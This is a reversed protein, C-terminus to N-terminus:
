PRAIHTNQLIQDFREQWTTVSTERLLWARGSKGMASRGDQSMSELSLVDRMLAESDGAKHLFGTGGQTVTETLGGSRAALVPKAYDFAEYVVIGLPEWWTSPVILARCRCLEQHKKEGDILGLPIISPNAAAHAQVLPALPGEGAIHLPPAADGHKARLLDWAACLPGIGKEEVLRGLFLYTGQDSVDPVSPMADWSHRLTFIRDAPIAGSAILQDRMFDSIAIWARVNELWGSAYLMQLMTAFLASKLVSGQWVGECVEPGLNGHLADDLIRGRSYLTGGVSFPRFNHLYQVVPIQRQKAAHYIAPSAVPYLNHTLVVQPDSQDAIQNFREKAAPNYFLRLAQSLTSPAGSRQWEKSDFLCRSVEHREALHRCIREVSKEEGGPHLYRNFVQLVRM